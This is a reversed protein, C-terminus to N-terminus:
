QKTRNPLRDIVLHNIFNDDVHDVCSSIIFVMTIQLGHNMHVRVETSSTVLFYTPCRKLCM